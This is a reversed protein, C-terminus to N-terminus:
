RKRSVASTFYVFLNEGALKIHHRVAGIAAERDKKKIAQLIRRNEGLVDTAREGRERIVLASVLRVQGSITEIMDELIGNATTHAILEHFRRCTALFENPRNQKLAAEARDLIGTLLTIVSDDANGIAESIAEVELAERVKYLNMAETLSFDRVVYGWGSDRLVLGDKELRALAERVPTRSLKLEDSLEQARLAQKPAYQLSLISERISAYARNVPSAVTDISTFANM